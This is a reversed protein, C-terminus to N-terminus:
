EEIADLNVKLQTALRIVKPPYMGADIQIAEVLERALKDRVRSDRMIEKQEEEIYVRNSELTLEGEIYVQTDELTLEEPHLEAVETALDRVFRVLHSFAEDKNKCSYIDNLRKEIRQRKM